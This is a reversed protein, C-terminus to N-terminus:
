PGPPAPSRPPMRRELGALFGRATAAPSAGHEDVEANLHRMTDADIASALPRLAALVDPAERALRASALLVADYPPIVHRDDALVTLGLAAIRGDTSSASIVDVQASAVATYMLSSDMSRRDRFRLDYTRELATWEPRSFFEYDGAMVLTPAHAALESISTIGLRGAAEDRMALAYANEFGLAAVMTIGHTDTLYRSVEALVIAPDSPVDTRKMITAWITGTYDVYLDLSGAVLADFAVTSGLSSVIRTSQGTARGIAGAVIESLVYQETFTKAGITIPRAGSALREHATVAATAVALAAFIGLALLVWGRRRARVGVELLRVVGDLALALAAAAVCGILVATSNRTQLGSFIYNGLSPAGVPTSLTAIGVVWVTATRIGAVIVPLALPLEVLRLQERPTMGVGRAAEVLAPDVGRIGIVTNRLIPLVSYLTLGILAPLYGISPVDVGFARVSARGAFALLPVMVALLALSPITQIVGAVGLVIAEARPRRTVWVGLPLSIATGIALAVLTLQLHAALFGPLLALQDSV